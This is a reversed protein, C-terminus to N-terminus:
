DKSMHICDHWFPFQGKPSCKETAKEGKVRGTELEEKWGIGLMNEITM